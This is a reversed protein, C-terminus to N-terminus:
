SRGRVPHVARASGCLTSSARTEGPLTRPPRGTIREVTPLVQSEDVTTDVFFSIFADVSDPPMTASM